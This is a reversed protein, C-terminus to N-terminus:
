LHGTCGRKELAKLNLGYFSCSTVSCARTALATLISYVLVTPRLSSPGLVSAERRTWAPRATLHPVHATPTPRPSGLGTACLLGPSTDSPVHCGRTQLSANM